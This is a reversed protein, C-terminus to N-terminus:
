PIRCDEHSAIPISVENGCGVRASTPKSVNSAETSVLLEGARMSKLPPMDVVCTVTFAQRMQDNEYNSHAATKRKLLCWVLGATAQSDAGCYNVDHLLIYARIQVLELIDKLDHKTWCTIGARETRYINLVLAEAQRM